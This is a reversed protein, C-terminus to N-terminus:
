WCPPNNSTNIWKSYNYPGAPGPAGIENCSVLVSSPTGAANYGYACLLRTSSSITCQINYTNTAVRRIIGINVKHSVSSSAKGTTDNYCRSQALAELTQSATLVYSFTKTVGLAWSDWEIEEVWVNPKETTNISKLIRIQRGTGSACSEAIDKIKVKAKYDTNLGVAWETVQPERTFPVMFSASGTGSYSSYNSAVLCRAQVQTTYTVGESNLNTSSVSTSTTTTWSGTTGADNNIRYQYQATTGSPCSAANWSYTSTSGSRSHSVSPTSPTTIARYISATGTSVTSSETAGVICRAQAQFEHTWGFNAALTNTRDSEWSTWASWAPMTGSSKRNQFRYQATTGSSCTIATATGVANSGSLAASITPASPTPIPQIVSAADSAVASSYITGNKCRVQAQFEHTWGFNAAISNSTATGWTSYSSWSGLTGSAKRSRFQYEPTAPSVCTVVSSVGVANSGSISATVTPKAPASLSTNGKVINSQEGNGLPLTPTIAFYYSTATTLGTVSRSTTAGGTVTITTPSSLGSNTSYRLVYATADEVRNWSLSISTTSQGTVSLTPKATSAITSKGRSTLEVIQGNSQRYRLKWALCADGNGCTDGGEGVFVFKDASSDNIDSPDCSISNSDFSDLPATLTKRDLGPLVSTSVAAADQTLGNCGPYEGKTRFVKELSEAILQAQTERRSDRANNQVTKYSVAAIGALIGIVAIVIVLEVITFGRADRRM